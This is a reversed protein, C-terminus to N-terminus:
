DSLSSDGILIVESFKAYISMVYENRWRLLCFQFCNASIRSGSRCIVKFLSRKGFFAVEDIVELGRFLVRTEHAIM